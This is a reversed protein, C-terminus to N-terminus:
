AAEDKVQTKYIVSKMMKFIKEKDIKDMDVKERVKMFKISDGRWYIGRSRLESLYRQDVHNLKYFIKLCDALREQYPDIASTAIEHKMRPECFNIWTKAIEQPHEPLGVPHKIGTDVRNNVVDMLRQIDTKPEPTEYDDNKNTFRAM